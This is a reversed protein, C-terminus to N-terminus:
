VNQQGRWVARRAFAFFGSRDEVWGIKIATHQKRKVPQLSKRHLDCKCVSVKKQMSHGGRGMKLQPHM